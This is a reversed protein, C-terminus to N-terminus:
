PSQSDGQSPLPEPLEFVWGTWNWIIEPIRELVERSMKEQISLRALRWNPDAEASVAAMAREDGEVLVWAPSESSFVRRAEEIAESLLHKFQDDRSRSYRSQSFGGKKSKGVVDKEEYVSEDVRDTVACIAYMDRHISILGIRRRELLPDLLSLDLAGTAVSEEEVPLPPQLLCGKQGCAFALIGRESRALRSAWTSMGPLQELLKRVGEPRVRASLCEGDLTFAVENVFAMVEGPELQAERDLIAAAGAGGQNELESLRAQLAELEKEREALEREAKGRRSEEEARRRREDKVKQHARDLQRRTADLDSNLADLKERLGEMAKEAERLDKELRDYDSIKTLFGPM